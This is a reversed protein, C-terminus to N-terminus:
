KGQKGFLSSVALKTSRKSAQVKEIEKAKAEAKQRAKEEILKTLEEERGEKSLLDGKVFEQLEENFDICEDDLMGDVLKLVEDLRGGDSLAKMIFKYSADNMKVKKVM